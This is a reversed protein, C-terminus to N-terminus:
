CCPFVISRTSASSFPRSPWRLEGESRHRGQGFLVRQDADLNITPECVIRGVYARLNSTRPPKSSSRNRIPLVERPRRRSGSQSPMHSPPRCISSMAKTRYRTAPRSAAPALRSCTGTPEAPLYATCPSAPRRLIKPAPLTTFRPAWQDTAGLRGAVICQADTQAFAPAALVAGAILLLLNAKMPGAYSRRDRESLM